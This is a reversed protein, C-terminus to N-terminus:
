RHDQRHAHTGAPQCIADDDRCRHKAQAGDGALQVPTRRFYANDLAKWAEDIIIITPRRDEIEREVRRFLYSLVAMREKESESDLIGTLDFGVVDGELSFTDELSQGFIWGYRGDSTWELLRQHM